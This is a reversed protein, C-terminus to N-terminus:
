CDNSELIMSGFRKDIWKEMKGTGDGGEMFSIMVSNKNKEGGMRLTNSKSEM